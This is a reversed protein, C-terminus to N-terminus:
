CAGYDDIMCFCNLLATIMQRSPLPQDMEAQKRKARRSAETRANAAALEARARAIISGGAMILNGRTREAVLAESLSGGLQGGVTVWGGVGVM